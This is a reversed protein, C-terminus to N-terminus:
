NFRCVNCCSNAHERRAVPSKNKNYQGSKSVRHEANRLGGVQDYARRVGIAVAIHLKFITQFHHEYPSGFCVLRTCGQTYVNAAHIIGLTTLAEGVEELMHQKEARLWKGLWVFVLLKYLLITTAM